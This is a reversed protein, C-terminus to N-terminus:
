LILPDTYGPFVRDPTSIVSTVKGSMIGVVLREPNRVVAIYAQLDGEGFSVANINVIIHTKRTSPYDHQILERGRISWPKKENFSIDPLCILRLFSVLYVFSAM